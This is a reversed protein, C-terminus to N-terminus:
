KQKVALLKLHYRSSAKEGPNYVEIKLQEAAHATSVAAFTTLGAFAMQLLTKNLM